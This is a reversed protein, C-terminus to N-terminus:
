IHILSLSVEAPDFGYNSATSLPWSQSGALAVGPVLVSVFLTRSVMSM